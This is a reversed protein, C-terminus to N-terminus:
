LQWTEMYLLSCVVFKVQSYKYIFYFLVKLADLASSASDIHAALGLGKCFQYYILKLFICAKANYQFCM